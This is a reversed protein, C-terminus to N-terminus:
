CANSFGYRLLNVHAGIATGASIYNLQQLCTVLEVFWFEEKRLVVGFDSALKWVYIDGNEEKKKKLADITLAKPVKINLM